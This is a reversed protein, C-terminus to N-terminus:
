FGRPHAITAASWSLFIIGCQENKLIVAKAGHSFLVISSNWMLLSGRIV